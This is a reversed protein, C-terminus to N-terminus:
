PRAEGKATFSIRVNCGQADTYTVTLVTQIEENASSYQMSMKMNSTEVGMFAKPAVVDATYSYGGEGSQASLDAVNDFYSKDMKFAKLDVSQPKIDLKGVPDSVVAGNAVKATGSYTSIKEAPPLLNGNDNVFTNAQQISYEINIGDTEQTLAYASSVTLNGNTTQVVIDLQSYDSEFAVTMVDGWDVYHQADTDCACLTVCMAAMVLILSIRVFKKM